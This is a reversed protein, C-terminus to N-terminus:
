GCTSGGAIFRDFTGALIHDLDDSSIVDGCADLFRLSEAYDCRNLVVPYNSGWILREAGFLEVARALHDHVDHFPFPEVSTEVLGSIKVRVRELPVLEALLPQDRYPEPGYPDLGLHDVVLDLLPHREAIEIVRALSGPAFLAVPVGLEEAEALFPSDAPLGSDHFMLRVGLAAPHEMWAVLRERPRPADPDLRGFVAIRDPHLEAVEIGYSNDFGLTSPTVQIAVSVGTAALIPLLSEVPNPDPQVPWPYPRGPQPDPWVHLHSDVIRRQPATTM